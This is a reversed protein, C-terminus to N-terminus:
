DSDKRTYVMANVRMWIEDEVVTRGTRCDVSRMRSAARVDATVSPMLRYGHRSFVQHWYEEPQLNVHHHGLQGPKAATCLIIRGRCLDTMYNPQYKEQVHELFEVSWVLDFQGELRAPGTEYDHCIFGDSAPLVTSDGDIGIATLGQQRAYLTMGGPGCGVDLMSSIGFRGVLLDLVPTDMLTVSFNGGLHDPLKLM